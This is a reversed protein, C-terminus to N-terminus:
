GRAHTKKRRPCRDPRGILRLAVWYMPFPRARELDLRAVEDAWYKESLLMGLPPPAVDPDSAYRLRTWFGHKTVEAFRHLYAASNHGFARVDFRSMMGLRVLMDFANAPPSATVVLHGRYEIQVPEWWEAQNTALDDLSM